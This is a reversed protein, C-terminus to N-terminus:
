KKETAALQKTEPQAYLAAYKAVEVMLERINCNNKAFKADLEDAITQSYAGVNQKTLHQFMQEVFSRRAETSTATYEALDRANSIEISRGDSTPYDGAPDVPKQNDHTRFRGVADYSELSFGVPNIVAHCVMCSDEKTLQETKERMTLSPHFKDDPFALAKPPPKLFRGMVNRTIFVGRRIPSTQKPYSFAAMLFPHTFVGARQKPDYGIKQFGPGNVEGGYFKALRPNMYLYDARLLERYDSKESWVVDSTFRMLSERADAIIDEEFGPFAGKDKSIQEAENMALWHEFFDRAKLRAKNDAFMRRTEAEIQEPTRLKGAAAAERLKKDPLSDWVSLALRSAVAWDDPKKGGHEPYLFRPSKLTLIVSRKVAAVPDQEAAFQDEVYLKKQEDTLPRRFAREAFDACFKKLKTKDDSSGALQRLHETVHIAVEIAAETASRDWEKSVSSGREFGQSGDDAPFQAFVACVLPANNVPALVEKPIVAWAGHPPRWELKVSASKEKAKHFELYLPYARGGILFTRGKLERVDTGSVVWGDIIPGRQEQQKAKDPDREQNLFLRAGNKTSLRFEYWGTEEPLLAGRWNVSFRETTVRPDPTKEGFNFDVAADVREFIINRTQKDKVMVWDRYEAKLGREAGIPDAYRFSGVLDAVSNQFQSVTLRALQMRVPNNRLRAARSYFAEHIYAAVNSAGVTGKYKGADDEPMTRGIYKALSEVTREGYLSTEYKGAVGEGTAGHCRACDKRYITEGDANALSGGLNVCGQPVLLSAVAGAGLVLAAIKVGSFKGLTKMARM